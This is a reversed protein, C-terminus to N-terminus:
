LYYRLPLVNLMLGIVIKKVIELSDRIGKKTGRSDIVMEICESTFGRVIREPDEKLPNVSVFVGLEKVLKM